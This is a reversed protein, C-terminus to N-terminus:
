WMNGDGHENEAIHTSVKGFAIEMYIYKLTLSFQKRCISLNVIADRRWFGGGKNLGRVRQEKERGPETKLIEKRLM